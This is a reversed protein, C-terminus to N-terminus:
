SFRNMNPCCIPQHSWVVIKLSIRRLILPHFQMVEAFAAPAFELRESRLLVASAPGASLFDFFLLFCWL